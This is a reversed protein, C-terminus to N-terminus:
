ASRASRESPHTPRCSGSPPAHARASRRNPPRIRRSHRATDPVAASRVSALTCISVSASIVSGTSGVRRMRFPSWILHFQCRMSAAATTFPRIVGAPALRNRMGTTGARVMRERYFAELEAQSRRLAALTADFGRAAVGFEDPRGEDARVSLDGAEARRMVTVLRQLPAVAERGILWLAIVM